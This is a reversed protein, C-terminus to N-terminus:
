FLESYRELSHSEGFRESAAGSNECAALLLSSSAWVGLLSWIFLGITYIINFARFARNDLNVKKFGFGFAQCPGDATGAHQFHSGWFWLQFCSLACLFLSTLLGYVILPQRDGSRERQLRCSALCRLFSIPILFYLYGFFLLLIIYIEVPKLKAAESILALFTAVTFLTIGFNLKPWEDPALEQSESIPISAIISSFWQLYFGVRVGIGYTDSNGSFSCNTVNTPVSISLTSNSMNSFYLFSSVSGAERFLHFPFFQLGSSIM